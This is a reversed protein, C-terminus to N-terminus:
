LPCWMCILTIHLLGSLQELMKSFESPQPQPPSCNYPPSTQMSVIPVVYLDIYHIVLRFATVSNRQNEKFIEGIDVGATLNLGFNELISNRHSENSGKKAFLSSYIDEFSIPNIDEIAPSFKQLDPLDLSTKNM